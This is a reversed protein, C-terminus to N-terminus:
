KKRDLVKLLKERIVKNSPVEPVNVVRKQKPAAQVTDHIRAAEEEMMSLEMDKLEWFEKKFQNVQEYEPDKDFQEVYANWNARLYAEREEMCKEHYAIAVLRREDQTLKKHLLLEELKIARYGRKRKADMHERMYETKPPRKFEVLALLNEMALENQRGLVLLENLVELEDKFPLARPKKVSSRIKRLHHKYYSANVLYQVAEMARPISYEAM